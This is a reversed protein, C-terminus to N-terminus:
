FEDARIVNHVDVSRLFARLAEPTEAMYPDSVSLEAPPLTPGNWEIVLAINQWVDQFVFDPVMINGFSPDALVVRDGAMGRFVVFHKYGRMTIPVLAPMGLGALQELSLQYGHVTYGFGMAVQKLDLLTFGGRRTVEKEQVRALIAHILEQEGIQHGFQYKLITALAASGCSIDYSQRMVRKWRQEQLSDVTTSMRMGHFPSFSVEAASAMNPIALGVVLLLNLFCLARFRSVMM